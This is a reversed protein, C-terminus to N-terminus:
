VLDLLRRERELRMCTDHALQQLRRSEERLSRQEELLDEISKSYDQSSVRQPQVRRATIIRRKTIPNPRDQGGSSQMEPSVDAPETSSVNMTTSTTSLRSRKIGQKVEAEAKSNIPRRNSVNPSTGQIGIAALKAALKNKALYNSSVPAMKTGTMIAPLCPNVPVAAALSSVRGLDCSIAPTAAGHGRGSGPVRVLSRSMDKIKLDAVM